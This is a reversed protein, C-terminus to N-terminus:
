PTPFRWNVVCEADWTGAGAVTFRVTHATVFSFGENQDGFGIATADKVTNSTLLLADPLDPVGFSFLGGPSISIQWEGPSVETASVATDALTGYEFSSVVAATVSAGGVDLSVDFVVGSPYWSFANENSITGGTNLLDFSTSASEHRWYATQIGATAAIPFAGTSRLTGATNYDVTAGAVATSYADYFDADVLTFSGFGEREWDVQVRSISAVVGAADCFENTDRYNTWFPCPM